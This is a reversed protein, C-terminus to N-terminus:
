SMVSFVGHLSTHGCRMWTGEFTVTTDMVTDAAASSLQHVDAAAAAMSKEAVAVTTKRLASTHGAFASHTMPPSMNMAACFKVLAQKGRGIWQMGLVARRNVDWFHGCKNALTRATRQQCQTCTLAITPALGERKVEEM